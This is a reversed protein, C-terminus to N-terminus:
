KNAWADFVSRREEESGFQRKRRLDISDLIHREDLTSSSFVRSREPEPFYRSVMLLRGEIQFTRQKPHTHKSNPLPHYAIADRVYRASWGLIRAKFALDVDDYYLFQDNDSLGVSSLMDFSWLAAAFCPAFPEFSPKSSFLNGGVRRNWDIDLFAGDKARLAHGASSVRDHDPKPQLVCCGWMAVGASSKEADGVLKALWTSEAQADINLTAVYRYQNRSGLRRFAHNQASAFGRNSPMWFVNEESLDGQKVARWIVGSTGDSSGNDVVCPVPTIQDVRLARVTDLWQQLEEAENTAIVVIPINM